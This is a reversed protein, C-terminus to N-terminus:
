KFISTIQYVAHPFLVSAAGCVNAILMRKLLMKDAADYYRQSLTTAGARWVCYYAEVVLCAGWILWYARGGIGHMSINRVIQFLYLINFFVCLATLIATYRKASAFERANETTAIERHYIREILFAKIATLVLIFM